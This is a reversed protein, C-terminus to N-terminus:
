GPQAAVGDVAVMNFVAHGQRLAIIKQYEPSAHFGKAKELTPFELVTLRKPTWKGELVALEGGRVLYKGGWKAVIAPAAAMYAKFGEPNTVNSEVIMYAPM